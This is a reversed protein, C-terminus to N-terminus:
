KVNDFFATLKAGNDNKRIAINDKLWSLDLTGPQELRYAAIDKDVDVFLEFEVIDFPTIWGLSIDQNIVLDSNERRDFFTPSISYRGNEWFLAM